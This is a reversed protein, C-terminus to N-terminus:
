KPLGNPTCLGEPIDGAEDRQLYGFLQESREPDWDVNLNAVPVTCTMGAEGDVRNMAFGFRAVDVPGTQEGLRVSDAGGTVVNYYRVPNVFTQWSLIEQGISSVVERQNEARQIDGTQFLKRSRAYGLATEGDAEQCGAQIDLKADPDKMDQKPCIEIGGVADVLNIMGTFGIEVYDDVHIGTSSEVTRVLLKPGGFAFAANIKNTGRGPIEVNSDRPISMLVNPGSGIHLLMITDTRRGALGPREDSGVVLYNKGGEDEPRDGDPEADVKSVTSYAWLPVALLFVLYALLVWKLWWLPGRRRKSRATKPAKEKSRRATRERGPEPAISTPAGQDPGRGSSRGSGAGTPIVQTAEADDHGGGRSGGSGGAAGGKGSYLWDYGDDGSGGRSGSDGRQAM